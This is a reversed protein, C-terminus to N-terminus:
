HPFLCTKVDYFIKSNQIFREPSSSVYIQEAGQLPNTNLDLDQKIFEVFIEAPDIFLERPAFQELIEFLYPYHTCGLIIKDPNFLLMKKVISSIDDFAAQTRSENNEVYGVWDPCAIEKIELKPNYKLLERTYAGSHVTAETAFIGVKSIGSLAIVKACSQIIPYIKFDYENKIVDYVQASSTNCAIVVGKVDRNRFFDLIRRACCILEAKSKNGYPLNATDGFYITNENPLLKKFRAYVSLGGVGSDFFGVPSDRKVRKLLATKNRNQSLTSM